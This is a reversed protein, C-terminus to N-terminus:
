ARDIDRWMEKVTRFTKLKGRRAQRRLAASERLIMEEETPTFGNVTTVRFPIGQALVIQRLYMKIAASVDLGLEDLVKKVAQKEKTDIRIQLKTDMLSPQYIIGSTYFLTM